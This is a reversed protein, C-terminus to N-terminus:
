SDKFSFICSSVLKIASALLLSLSLSLLLRMDVNPLSLALGLVLLIVLVLLILLSEQVDSYYSLTGPQIGFRNLFGLTGADNV